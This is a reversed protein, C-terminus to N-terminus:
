VWTFINLFNDVLGRLYLDFFDFDDFGDDIRVINVLYIALINGLVLFFIVVDACCFIFLILFPLGWVFNTM